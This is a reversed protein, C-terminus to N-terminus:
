GSLLQVKDDSLKIYPHRSLANGISIHTEKPQIAEPRYRVKRKSSKFMHQDFSESTHSMLVVHM